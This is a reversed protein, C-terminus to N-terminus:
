EDSGELDFLYNSYKKTPTKVDVATPFKAQFVALARDANVAYVSVEKTEGDIKAQVKYMNLLQSM